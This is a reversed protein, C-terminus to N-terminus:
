RGRVIGDTLDSLIETKLKTAHALFDKIDSLTFRQATNEAITNIDFDFSFGNFYRFTNEDGEQGIIFAINAIVNLIDQKENLKTEERKMLRVSWEFPNSFYSGGPIFKNLFFEKQKDEIDILITKTNLALRSASKSYKNLLLEFVTESKEVFKPIQEKSFGALDDSNFNIDIRYSYIFIDMEEKESTLRLRSKRVSPLINTISIPMIGSNTETFTSPIIDFKSFEKTLDMIVEPTPKIDEFNGFISAKFNMEHFM